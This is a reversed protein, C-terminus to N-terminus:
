LGNGIRDWRAASFWTWPKIWEASGDTSWVIFEARGVLNQMPVFGVGGDERMTRSDLSSDRNDGMVFVHDEPVTVQEFSDSPYEGQDLVAITEGNPLTERAQSYLCDQEGLTPGDRWKATKCVTNASIPIAFDTTPEQALVEGNLVIRGKVVAITDGPLAIIRKIYEVGEVPHTFIVVDGREPLSSFVRGDPLPPSFPLSARSYGYPWKSAILYDGKWLHPLMSESPISFPSFVLARLILVAIVVKTVFWAFSLLSEREPKGAADSAPTQSLTSFDRRATPSTPPDTQPNVDM